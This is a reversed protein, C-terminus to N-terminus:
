CPWQSTRTWAAAANSRASRAATSRTVQRRTCATFTSDASSSAWANTGPMAARPNPRIMKTTDSVMQDGGRPSM